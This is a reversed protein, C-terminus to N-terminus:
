WKFCVIVSPFSALNKDTPEDVVM